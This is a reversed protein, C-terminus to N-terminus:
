KYARELIKQAKEFEEDVKKIFAYEEDTIEIEPSCDSPVGDFGSVRDQGADIGYYPYLEDKYIRIKM